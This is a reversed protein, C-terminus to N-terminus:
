PRPLSWGCPENCLAMGTISSQPFRKWLDCVQFDRIARKQGDVRRQFRGLISLRFLDAVQAPFQSFRPENEWRLCVLGDRRRQNVLILVLIVTVDLFPWVLCELPHPTQNVAEYLRALLSKFRSRFVKPRALGGLNQIGVLQTRPSVGPLAVRHSIARHVLLICVVLRYM